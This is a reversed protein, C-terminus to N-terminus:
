AKAQFLADEVPAFRGSAPDYGHVEVDVGFRRSGEDQEVTFVHYQARKEPRSGVESSSPVGVIPIQTRGDGEAAAPGDVLHVRRRHKHGHLVLDAGTRSLIALLEQGDRLGRRAGEDTAVVPHHILVVRAFGQEDLADLLGELRELQQVGLEGWARFIPTPISSCLGVVALRGFFRLTPFEDYRPARTARGPSQSSLSGVIRPDIKNAADGAPKSAVAQLFDEASSGSLFPAWYDWSREIPVPVYCDHNGPILFVSEPDGLSELQRRATKFESELAIHTLDGTVLIADVDQERVDRIAAELVEVSHHARRKLRWSAWGSLRKPLSALPDFLARGQGELTTAHWDSLHALRFRVGM